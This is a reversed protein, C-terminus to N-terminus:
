RGLRRAAEVPKPTLQRQLQTTNSQEGRERGMFDPFATNASPHRAAEDWRALTTPAILFVAQIAIRLHRIFEAPTADRHRDRILECFFEVAERKAALVNTLEKSAVGDISGLGGRGILLSSLLRNAFFELHDAEIRRNKLQKHLSWIQTTTPIKDPGNEGTAYEVVRVFQALTMQKLGIWYAELRDGIPVNFAACLSALNSEFEPREPLQM